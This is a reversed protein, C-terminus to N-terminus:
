KDCHQRVGPHRQVSFVPSGQTEEPVDKNPCGGRCSGQRTGGPALFQPM